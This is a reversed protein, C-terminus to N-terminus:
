GSRKTITSIKYIGRPLFEIDYLPVRLINNENKFFDNIYGVDKNYLNSIKNQWKEVPTSSLEPLSKEDINM